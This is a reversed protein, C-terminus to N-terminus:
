RGRWAELAVRAYGDHGPHWTAVADPDRFAVDLTEISTSPEGGVLRCLYLVAIQTHPDGDLSAHRTFVDVLRDAEVEYGTEERTERVAAEAPSEGPEVWGCPLCWTRDDARRVLLLRGDGDFVAAEAGVKATAHGLDAAFRRRVEPAPLDALEAYSEAALDLLQQYRQRDFPDEAYHLGTQAITRVADLLAVTDRPM